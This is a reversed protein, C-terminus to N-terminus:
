WAALYEKWHPGDLAALSSKVLAVEQDYAAKAM